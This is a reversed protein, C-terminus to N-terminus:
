PASTLDSTLVDWAGGGAWLRPLPLGPLPPRLLALGVFTSSGALGVLLPTQQSRMCTRCQREV